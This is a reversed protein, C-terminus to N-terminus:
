QPCKNEIEDEFMTYANQFRLFACYLDNNLSAINDDNDDVSANEIAHVARNMDGVADRLPYTCSYPFKKAPQEVVANGPFIVLSSQADM